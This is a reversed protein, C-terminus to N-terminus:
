QEVAEPLGIVMTVGGGPTDEITLVGDMFSTTVDPTIRLGLEECDLPCHHTRKIRFSRTM